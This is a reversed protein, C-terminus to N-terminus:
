FQWSVGVAGRTLPDFASEDSRLLRTVEARLATRPTLHLRVGAGAQTSLRSDFGTGYGSHVPVYTGGPPIGPFADNLNDPGAVFRVGARVFPSLRRDAFFHRTGVLDIPHVTYRRFETVPMVNPLEGFFHVYPSRYSPAAAALEIDWSPLPSYAVAVGPRVRRHCTVVAAM